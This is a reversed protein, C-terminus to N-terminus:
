ASYQCCGAIEYHLAACVSHEGCIARRVSLFQPLEVGTGSDHRRRYGIEDISNLIYGDHGSPAAGVCQEVCRATALAFGAVSPNECKCDASCCRKRDLWESMAFRWRGGDRCLRRRFFNMLTSKEKIGLAGATM